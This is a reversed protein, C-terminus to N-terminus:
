WSSCVALSPRRCPSIRWPTLGLTYRMTLTSLEDRLHAELEDLDSRRFTPSHELDRRWKQIAGNLDFSTQDEMTEDPSRPSGDM